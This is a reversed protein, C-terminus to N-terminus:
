RGIKLPPDHAHAIGTSAIRASRIVFTNPVMVASTPSRHPDHATLRKANKAVVAGAFRGQDLNQRAIV